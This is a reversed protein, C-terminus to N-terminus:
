FPLRGSALERQLARIKDLENLKERKTEKLSLIQSAENLGLTSLKDLFNKRPSFNPDRLRRSSARLKAEEKGKKTKLMESIRNRISKLLNALKDDVESRIARRVAQAKGALQIKLMAIKERLPTARSDIKKKDIMDQYEKKLGSQIQERQIRTLFTMVRAINRRVLGIRSPNALQGTVVQFRLNFLEEKFHHYKELLETESLESFNERNKM